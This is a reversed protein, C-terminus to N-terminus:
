LLVMIIPPPPPPPPVVERPVCLYQNEQQRLWGLAFELIVGMRPAKSNNAGGGHMISGTYMLVSGAKMVAKTGRDGETTEPLRTSNDYSSRKIVTKHVFDRTNKKQAEPSWKHSGPYIVTAGNEETFDDFAWMTNFVIEPHPKPIPYKDDDRHIPQGQEGPLLNIGTPSSLTFFKNGLVSRCTNWVLDKCVPEDMVRTKGFIGYLRQTKFGEFRNRGQPLEGFLGALETKKRAVEEPSLMDRVVCCGDDEIAKLIKEQVGEENPAFSQIM